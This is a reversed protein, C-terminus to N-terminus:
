AAKSSHPMAGQQEQPAPAVKSNLLEALGQMIPSLAKNASQLLPRSKADVVWPFQSKEEPFFWNYGMFLILVILFGRAVGFTFGLVRDIMGVRSDLITDSIRATILHVIILVILFVIAGIVIQAVPVPAGMQKAIEGALQKQQLVVYLTAGAAVAWSLISLLERSLGRYMAFLGSIFCLALLGVDLYSLPGIM